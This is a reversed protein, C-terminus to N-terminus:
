QVSHRMMTLVLSVRPLLNLKTNKVEGDAGTKIKYVWKCGIPKKGQPLEVLEWVNNSQISKMEREMAESWMERENSSMAETVSQPERRQADATHIWTGYYDPRKRERHSRRVTETEGETETNTESDEIDDPVDNQDPVADRVDDTQNSSLDIGFYNNETMSGDQEKQFGLKMEDFVVDRSHFVRDRKIDYLRYGKTTNSYGLLICQRAKPDLKLREDRPIHSYATCGFVRLHKVSPRRGSWAEHPTMKIVAKTYSRNKLYVATSLAEAWFKHPLKSSSLMARVAEILTRNLREAVGNQEPNKPVSLEHKIGERKLYENFETSTYEGGNDTRLVKLKFTSELEVLAKWKLFKSFAESKQKLVYIWIYHTKDDVFTLFYKAGSLSPTKMPGCIDSHVLELPNQPRTRGKKPFSSRHLKGDICSKCLPISKATNYDFDDVLKQNSLM